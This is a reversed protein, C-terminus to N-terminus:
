RSRLTQEGSTPSPKGSREQGPQHNQATEQDVQTPDCRLGQSLRDIGDVFETQPIQGRRTGGWRMWAGETGKEPGEAERPAAPAAGRPQPSRAQLKHQPVHNTLIAGTGGHLRVQPHASNSREGDM